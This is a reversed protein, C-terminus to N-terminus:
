DHRWLRVLAPLFLLSAILEWGMALAVLLGAQQMIPFPSMALTGFGIMTTLSTFLIPMGTKELAARISGNPQRIHSILHIADDIALGVYLPIFLLNVGSLYDRCLTYSGLMAGLGLLMPTMAVCAWPLSRFSIWLVILIIALMAAAIKVLDARILSAMEKLILDESLISAWGEKLLSESMLQDVLQMRKSGESMETAPYLYNVLRIRYEEQKSYRSLLIEMGERKLNALYPEQRSSLARKIAKMYEKYKTGKLLHVSPLAKIYNDEFRQPDLEAHTLLWQKTQRRKEASPVWHVLSDFHSIKGQEKYQGALMALQETRRLVSEWDSGSVIIRFPYLPNDLAQTLRQFAQQSSTGAAHTESLNMELRFQWLFSSFFAFLALSGLFVFKAYKGQGVFFIRSLDRTQGVKPSATLISLLAPLLFIVALLAFLLGLGAIFGLERFAVLRTFLFMLFAASTTFAGFCVSRGTGSWTKQLSESHGSGAHRERWYANLLYAPFDIGLGILIAGIGATAINLSGLTFGAMGFAACIGVLVPIFALFTAKLGRFFCLFLLIIGGLSLWSSQWAASKLTALDELLTVPLGTWSIRPPPFATALEGSLHPNYQKWMERSLKEAEQLLQETQETKGAAATSGFIFFALKHDRTVFYEGSGDPRINESPLFYQEIVKVLGLPDFYGRSMSTPEQNYQELLQAQMFDPQFYTSLERLQDERLLYIGHRIVYEGINALLEESLNLHEAQAVKLNHLAKKYASIFRRYRQMPVKPPPEIIVILFEARGFDKVQQRYSELAPLDQPLLSSARVDVQLRFAGTLSLGTILLAIGVVWYPHRSSLGAARALLKSLLGM